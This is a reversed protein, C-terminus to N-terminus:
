ELDSEAEISSYVVGWVELLAEINRQYLSFESKAEDRLEQQKEEPLDEPILWDFVIRVEGTM